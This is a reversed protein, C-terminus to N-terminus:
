LAVRWTFIWHCYMSSCMTDVSDLTTNFILTTEM